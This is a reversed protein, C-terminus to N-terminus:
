LQLLPLLQKIRTSYIVSFTEYQLFIGTLLSCLPTINDKTKLCMFLLSNFVSGM